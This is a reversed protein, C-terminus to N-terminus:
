TKKFKYYYAMVTSEKPCGNIAQLGPHNCLNM